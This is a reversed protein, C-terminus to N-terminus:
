IQNWRGSMAYIHSLLVYPVLKQHNLELVHEAVFEALRLNKYIRCAGHLFIWVMGTRHM